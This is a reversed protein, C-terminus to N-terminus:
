WRLQSLGKMTHHKWSDREPRRTSVFVPMRCVYDCGRTVVRALSHEELWFEPIYALAKGRSLLGTLLAASEVRWRMKRPFKDDRWGDISSAPPTKGYIADNPSVFDHTLVEEIAVPQGKKARAFLPHGKGAAVVLQFDAIQRSVVDGEPKQVTIAFDSVGDELLRLAGAGSTERLEFVVQPYKAQFYDMFPIGYQNLLFERGAITVHLVAERGMLETKISETLDVLENARRLFHRGEHTLVVNRGRREFLLVGLEDELAAIAKSVAPASVNVKAAAAHINELQAAAIFYKVKQLEM